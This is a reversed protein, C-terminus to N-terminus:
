GAPVAQDAPQDALNMRESGNELQGIAAVMDGKSKKLAGIAQERSVEAMTMVLKIDKETPEEDVAEILAENAMKTPKEVM